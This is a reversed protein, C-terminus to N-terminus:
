FADEGGDDVRRRVAEVGEVVVGVDEVDHRGPGFEGEEGLEGGLGVFEAGFSAADDSVVVAEFRLVFFGDHIEAAGEGEIAM